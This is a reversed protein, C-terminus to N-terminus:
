VSIMLHLVGLPPQTPEFNSESVLHLAASMMNVNHKAGGGEGAAATAAAAPHTLGPPCAPTTLARPRELANAGAASTGAAGYPVSAPTASEQDGPQAARADSTADSGRSGYEEMPKDAGDMEDTEDEPDVAIAAAAFMADGSFSRPSGLAALADPEPHHQKKVDDLHWCKFAALSTVDFVIGLLAFFIVIHANVEAKEGASGDNDMNDIAQLVFFLTFGGLLLLSVGSMLLELFVKHRAPACEALLNGLFSLADALMSACDAALALSHAVMAAVYQSATIVSFLCCALLLMKANNTLRRRRRRPIGASTTPLGLEDVADVASSTRPQASPPQATASAPGDAPM